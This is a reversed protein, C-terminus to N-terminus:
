LHWMFGVTILWTLEENSIHFSHTPLNGGTETGGWQTKDKQDNVDTTGLNGQLKLRNQRWWTQGKTIYSKRNMTITEKLKGYFATYSLSVPDLLDGTPMAQAITPHYHVRSVRSSCSVPLCLGTEAQNGDRSQRSLSLVKSPPCLNRWHRDFPPRFTCCGPLWLHSNGFIKAAASGMKGWGPTTQPRLLGSDKTANNDGPSDDQRKLRKSVSSSHNPRSDEAVAGMWGAKCDSMEPM